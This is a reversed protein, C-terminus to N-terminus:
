SRLVEVCSNGETTEKSIILNEEPENLDKLDLNLTEEETKGEYEYINLM